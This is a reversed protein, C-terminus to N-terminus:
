CGARSRRADFWREWAIRIHTPLEVDDWVDELDAVRIFRKIDDASGERLVQEYVRIRDERKSLDYLRPAGSWRVWPPLETVGSAKEIGPDDIDPPIVAPRVAATETGTRARVAPTLQLTLRFGCSDILRALTRLEPLVAGTEYRAIAAQSTGAAEALEVQTLSASRRARRLAEAVDMRLFRENM